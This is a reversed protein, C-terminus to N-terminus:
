PELFNGPVGRIGPSILRPKGCNRPWNKGEGPVRILIGKFPVRGVLTQGFVRLALGWGKPFGVM